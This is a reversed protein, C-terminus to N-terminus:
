PRRRRDADTKGKFSKGGSPKGDSRKNSKPKENAKPKAKAWGKATKSKGGAPMISDADPGSKAKGRLDVNQVKQLSGKVFKLVNGGM